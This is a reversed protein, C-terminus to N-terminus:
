NTLAPSTVTITLSGMKNDASVGSIPCTPCSTNRNVSGCATYSAYCGDCTEAASRWRSGNWTCGLQTSGWAPNHFFATAEHFGQRHGRYLHELGNVSHVLDTETSIGPSGTTDNARAQFRKFEWTSDPTCATYDFNGGYYITSSCGGSYNGSGSVWSVYGTTLQTASSPRRAKYTLIHTSAQGPTSVYELINSYTLYGYKDRNEVWNVQGNLATFGSIYTGNWHGLHNNPSTNANYLQIEPNIAYVFDKSSPAGNYARSTSNFAICFNRVQNFVGDFGAKKTPTRTASSFVSNLSTPLGGSHSHEYTYYPLFPLGSDQNTYPNTTFMSPQPVGALSGSDATVMRESAQYDYNPMGSNRDSSRPNLSVYDSPCSSSFGILSIGSPSGRFLAAAEMSIYLTNGIRTGNRRVEAGNAVVNEPTQFTFCGNAFTASPFNTNNFRPVDTAQLGTGCIRINDVGADWDTIRIATDVTPSVYQVSAVREWEPNGALPSQLTVERWGTTAVTPMSLTVSNVTRAVIPVNESNWNATASTVYDASTVEVVVQEGPTSIGIRNPSVNVVRVFIAYTYPTTDQQGGPNSVALDVVSPAGVAPTTSVIYDHGHVTTNIGEIGGFHVRAGPLFGSGYIHVEEGGAIGGMEQWISDIDPYGAPSPRDWFNLFLSGHGLLVGGSFSMGAIGGSSGVWTGYSDSGWPNYASLDTNLTGLTAGVKTLYLTKWYNNTGDDHYITWESTAALLTWLKNNAMVSVAKCNSNDWQGVVAPNEMVNTSGWCGSVTASSLDGVVDTSSAPLCYKRSVPVMQSSDWQEGFAVTQSSDTRLAESADLVQATQGSPVIGGTPCTESFGASTISTGTDPGAVTEIVWYGESDPAGTLEPGCPRGTAALSECVATGEAQPFMYIYTYPEAAGFCQIVHQSNPSSPIDAVGRSSLNVAQCVGAKVKDALLIYRRKTDDFGDEPLEWDLLSPEKAERQFEKVLIRALEKRKEVTDVRAQMRALTVPTLGNRGSMAQFAADPDSEALAALEANDGAYASAVWDFNPSASVYADLPPVPAHKLYHGEAVLLSIHAPWVGHDQHYLTSAGYVQQSQNSLEVALTKSKQSVYVEGGYFAGALSLVVVLVISLIVLILNPM